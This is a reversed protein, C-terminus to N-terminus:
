IERFCNKVRVVSIGMIIAKIEMGVSNRVVPVGIQIVVIPLMFRVIVMSPIVFNRINVVRMHNQTAVSLKNISEVPKSLVRFSRAVSLIGVNIMWSKLRVYRYRKTEMCSVWLMRIAFSARVYM